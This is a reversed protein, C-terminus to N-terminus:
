YDVSVEQWFNGFRLRFVAPNAQEGIAANKIVIKFTGKSLDFQASRITGDYTKEKKYSYKGNGNSVLTGAPISDRFNGWYLVMQGADDLGNAGERLAITGQLTLSDANDKKLNRNFKAKGPTVALCDYMSNMFQLTIGKAVDESVTGRAYYSGLGIEVVVPYNLGTLDVDKAQIAFSLAKDKVTFKVSAGDIMGKYSSGSASDKWGEAETDITASWPGVRLGLATATETEQDTPFVAAVGSVNFSDTGTTKGRRFKAKRVTLDVIDDGQALFWGDGDLAGEPNELELVLGATEDYYQWGLVDEGAMWKVLIEGDEISEIVETEGDGVNVIMGESYNGNVLHFQMATMEDFPVITGTSYADVLIEEDEAMQFVWGRELIDRAALVYFGNGNEQTSDMEEIRLGNIGFMQQPVFRQVSGWGEFNNQGRYSRVIGTQGGLYPADSFDDSGEAFAVASEIVVTTQPVDSLWGSTDSYADDTLTAAIADVVEMGAMVEGFVCYGYGDGSPYSRDLFLNDVHNIFFQSTASDPDSTRAMAITGRRNSLGDTSENTIPAYSPNVYNLNTDYGGGQIMFDNIVRHFILGDYFGDAVYALFNAVTGPAEEEFLRIFITGEIDDGNSVSIIVVPHDAEISAASRYAGEYAGMDVIPSEGNGTDDTTPDNTFRLRGNIDAVVTGPVASNDGADLCASGNSLRLDDDQTGYTDDPGDADLFLPDTDINGTGTYGGQVDSYTVAASGVGQNYIQPGQGLASNDWLIGNTLIPSSDSNYIGGGDYNAFNGCFNSNIVTPSSEVNCMGGGSYQATNGTILCNTIAPNGAETNYMGGGNNASNARFTCNTITPDCQFNYMGGGSDHPYVGDANGATIIFGDLIASADLNTGSPHNLVHYCNDSHDGLVGLDGSLITEYWGPARNNRTLTGASPFGGYIAVGNKMQFTKYRDGTDSVEVTPYYAGTAVWIEDGAIALDLGDQLSIFANEWSAGNNAGGATSNVYIIIKGKEYVGMDVIPSDGNGTDEITPDDSFRNRGDLDTDASDPVASNDGADICPSDVSLRLNDDHTGLIDDAGDADIFGPDAEINGVGSYGGQIDCYSVTPLSTENYIQSGGSIATNSWFICNTVAPNSDDNYMGGGHNDAPNGYFTCNTITSGSNGNAMAGGSYATNNIFICNTITPSSSHNCVGGGISDVSNNSFHCNTISPNSNYYNYIGAGFTASNDSFNSHIIVPNSFYNFIGAGFHAENYRFICRTLTPGCNDNFMGSGSGHPSEGDANGATITFGDLIASSDLEIDSPHYFVHYCNDSGDGPTGIDGSLITEYQDPDRDEWGPEGTDPFGGYIAVGNRMQFAQRREGTGGQEISPYYTGQAVWIEEDTSVVDLAEQLTGFAEEWSSGTSGAAGAKVYFIDGVASGATIGQVVVMIFVCIRQCRNLNTPM